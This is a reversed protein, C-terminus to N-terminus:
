FDEVLSEVHNHLVDKICGPQNVVCASAPAVAVTTAVGTGLLSLAAVAIAKRTNSRRVPKTSNHNM